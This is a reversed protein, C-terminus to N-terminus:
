FFFVFRVVVLQQGLPRTLVCPSQGAHEWRWAPSKRSCLPFEFPLLLAAFWPPLLVGPKCAISPSLTSCAYLCLDQVRRTGIQRLFQEWYPKKSLGNWSFQNTLKSLYILTALREDRLQGFEWITQGLGQHVSRSSEPLFSPARPGWALLLGKEGLLGKLHLDWVGSESVSATNLSWAVLVTLKQQM